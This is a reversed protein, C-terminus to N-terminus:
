QEENLWANLLTVAEGPALNFIRKLHSLTAELLFGGESVKNAFDEIGAETEVDNLFAFVKEKNTVM